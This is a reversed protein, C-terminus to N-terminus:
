NQNNGDEIDKPAELGPISHEVKLSYAEIFANKLIGYIADLVSVSPDDLSGKIPLRTAVLDRSDNEFLSALAGGILDVLLLVPNDGDEVVDEHWSFVDLEYIGAKVYGNLEGDVSKLESAMDIQGAEFDFPAYYKIIEDIYAVPLKAMELNIDFTPKTTNPDFSANLVLKTRNQIDGTMDVKAITGPGKANAINTVNLQINQVALEARKLKSKADITFTGSKITLKNITFPSLNRALGLWTKEDTIAKSEFVKDQPRDYLSVVPKVLVIATVLHGKLLASWLISIDIREATFLPLDQGDGTQRINAQHITYSGMFIALDVDAVTGSVGDTQEITRNVYWTVLSPASIRVILLLLLVTTIVVSYIKISKNWNM